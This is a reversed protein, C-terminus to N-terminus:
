ATTKFFATQLLEGLEGTASSFLLTLRSFYISCSSCLRGINSRLNMMPYYIGNKLHVGKRDWAKFPGTEVRSAVATKETVGSHWRCSRGGSSALRAAGM